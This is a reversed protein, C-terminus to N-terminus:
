RPALIGVSKLATVVEAITYGGFTDGTRVPLASLPGQVFPTPTAPIQTLPSVLTGFYQTVLYTRIVDDRNFSSSDVGNNVSM